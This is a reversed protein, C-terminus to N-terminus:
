RNTQSRNTSAGSTQAGAASPSPPLRGTVAPGDEIRRIYWDHRPRIQVRQGQYLTIIPTLNITRELDSAAIEGLKTSLEQSGQDAIAASTSGTTTTSTTSTTTQTGAATALRVATSIGTLIFATGYREWFRNDVEGTVGGRGQVDGVPSSLQLIEARHGAMLIRTCNLALRSDGQRSPSPFSCILRSGKPILKSRGHYGYVDRSTQIIVEGGADSDLQSNVGTEINGSIYRDAAFIRSNDVPLGSVRGEAEYREQVDPLGMSGAAPVSPVDLSAVQAMAPQGGGPMGGSWAPEGWDAQLQGRQSLAVGLALRYPDPPAPPTVPPAPAPAEITKPEVYVTETIVVPPMAPPPEPRPARVAWADSDDEPLPPPVTVAESSCTGGLSLGLALLIDCLASM